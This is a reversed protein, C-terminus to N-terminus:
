PHIVNGRRPLQTAYPKFTVPSPIFRKSGSEDDIEGDESDLLFGGEPKKMVGILSQLISIREILTDQTFLIELYTLRFPM